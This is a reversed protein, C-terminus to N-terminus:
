DYDPYIEDVDEGAVAKWVTQCNREVEIHVSPPLDIDNRKLIHLIDTLSEKVRNQDVEAKSQDSM